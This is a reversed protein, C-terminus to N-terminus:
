LCLCVASQTWEGSPLMKRHSIVDHSVDKLRHHWISFGVRNFWHTNAQLVISGFKMRIRESVVSVESKQFSNGWCCCCSLCRYSILGQDLFIMMNQM